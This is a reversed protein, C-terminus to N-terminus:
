EKRWFIKYLFGSLYIMGATMFWLVISKSQFGNKLVFVHLVISLVIFLPILIITMSNSLLIPIGPHVLVFFFFMLLLGFICFVVMRQYPEVLLEQDYQTWIYMLIFFAALYLWDKLRFKYFMSNGSYTPLIFLGRRLCRLMSFYLIHIKFKNHDYHGM